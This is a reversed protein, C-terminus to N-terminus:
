EQLLASLASLGQTIEDRGFDPQTILAEEFEIVAAARMWPHIEGRLVPGNHRITFRLLRATYEFAFDRNRKMLEQFAKFDVEGAKDFLGGHRRYCDRLTESFVMSNGSVQFVGAETTEPRNSAPNTVDRGRNWRWSAEFGALVRLAECMVARRNANVLEPLRNRISDYLDPETGRYSPDFIEAPARSAWAILAAIFENPPVGRNHVPLYVASLESM